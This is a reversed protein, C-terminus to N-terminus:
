LKFGVQGHASCEQKQEKPGGEQQTRGVTPVSSNFQREWKPSNHQIDSNQSQQAHM